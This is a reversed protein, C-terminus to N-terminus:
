PQKLRVRYITFSSLREGADREYWRDLNDLTVPTYDNVVVYSLPVRAAQTHSFSQTYARYAAIEARIVAPQLPQWNVTWAPENYAWEILSHLLHRTRPETQNYNNEDVGDLTVGTYYLSQYIREKSEAVTAAFAPLHPAWLVAEPAHTPAYEADGM